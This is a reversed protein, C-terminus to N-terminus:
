VFGRRRRQARALADFAVAVVLVVGTVIYKMQSSLSLLDMGNSIAGIVLAGTLAAWVTGRGGFLSVGAIVPGAIALLLLDSGGSNQTVAQLRSAALIGGASAFTSALVFGSIRIRDVKIGARKAADPNGGVAYIYQGYRTSTLIVGMIFASALLVVISVNLGRDALVIALFAVVLVLLGLTPVVVSSTASRAPLNLAARRRRKAVLYFVLAVLAFSALGIAVPASLFIRTIGTIFPAKINITGTTGLVGLHVGQWTLLGSLTVIFSPLRLFTIITGQILGILAGVLLAILIGVVPNWGRNVVLVSMVAAALGSVAGVSLDIEGLLLVMVVGVSILAVATVQLLLNNLNIPTLFAPTLLAFTGVVVLLVIGTRAPGLAADTFLTGLSQRRPLVSQANM